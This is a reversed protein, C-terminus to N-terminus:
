KYQNRTWGTPIRALVHDGRNVWFGRPPPVENSAHRVGLGILGRHGLVSLFELRCEDVYFARLSDYNAKRFVVFNELNRVQRPSIKAGEAVAQLELGLLARAAAFNAENPLHFRRLIVPPFCFYAGSGHVIKQSWDTRGLCKIRLRRYFRCLTAVTKLTADSGTEYAALSVRSIGVAKATQTQTMGMLARAARLSEPPAYDITAAVPPMDPRETM